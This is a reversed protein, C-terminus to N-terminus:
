SSPGASSVGQLTRPLYMDETVLLWSAPFVETKGKFFLVVILKFFDHVWM